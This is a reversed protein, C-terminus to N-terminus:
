AEERRLWREVFKLEARAGNLKAWTLPDETIPTDDLQISLLDIKLRLENARIQVKEFESLGGGQTTTTDNTSM